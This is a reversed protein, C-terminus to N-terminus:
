SAGGPAPPEPLRSLLRMGGEGCGLLLRRGDIEILCVERGGALRLRELCRLRPGPAAVRRRRWWWLGLAGGGWVLASLGLGAGALPRALIFLLLLGAAACVVRLFRPELPMRM